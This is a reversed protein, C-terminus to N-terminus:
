KENVFKEALAEFRRCVDEIELYEPHEKLYIHMRGQFPATWNEPIQKKGIVAGVISGATAGTCDNDGSMAITEGITKTFDKEGIDLGMVVHIANTVASGNFMGDYVKWTKEYAEQYNKSKNDLAWRIAEAFLCNEPIETLGIRVAEMPDDVVFAASIAAAMFMSGYVGNRRHNISCDKYALEAAKEPWGPCSFGYADARTWGAINQLNPNGAIGAEPLTMGKQFNLMMNREGWYCGRSGNSGEIPLYRNWVAAMDQHTFNMGYQELILLGLLTYITDDDPPVADMHDKTLDIKKGTIYHPNMPDKIHSWYDTLPYEDGFYEAWAKMTEVPNFELAAGLTCGAMRGYFAGRLRDPYDAPVTDTMRRPGKPRLAKISELDDPEDPDAQALVLNQFEAIKEDLGQEFEEFIRRGEQSCGFEASLRLYRTLDDVKEQLLTASFPVYTVERIKM